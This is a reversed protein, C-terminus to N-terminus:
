QCENLLYFKNRIDLSYIDEAPFSAFILVALLDFDENFDAYKVFRLISFINHWNCSGYMIEEFIRIYTLAHLARPFLINQCEHLSDLEVLRSLFIDSLDDHQWARDNDSNTFEQFNLLKFKDEFLLNITEYLFSVRDIHGGFRLAKITEDRKLLLKSWGLLRNPLDKPHENPRIALSILAQILESQNLFDENILLGLGGLNAKIAYYREHVSQKALWSMWEEEASWDAVQLSSDELRRKYQPLVPAIEVIADLPLSYAEKYHPHKNEDILGSPDILAIVRSKADDLKFMSSGVFINDSFDNSSYIRSPLLHLRGRARWQILETEALCILHKNVPIAM